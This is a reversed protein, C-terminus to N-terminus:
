EWLIKEVLGALELPDFTRRPQYPNPGVQDPSLEVLDQSAAAGAEPETGLSDQIGLLSDLGRGLRRKSM